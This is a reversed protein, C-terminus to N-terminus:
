PTVGNEGKQWRDFAWGAPILASWNSAAINARKWRVDSARGNTDLKVKGDTERQPVQEFHAYADFLFGVRATYYEEELHQFGIDTMLCSYSPYGMFAANNLTRGYTSWATDYATLNTQFSDIIGSLTVTLQPVEMAVPNGGEDLKTGAIDVTSQLAAGTPPANAGNVDRWAPMIRVGPQITRHVPLRAKTADENRLEYKTSYRLSVNAGWGTAVAFQEISIDRLRLTSRVSTVGFSVDYPKRPYLNSSVALPITTAARLAALIGSSDMSTTLAADDWAIWRETLTGGSEDYSSAQLKANIAM